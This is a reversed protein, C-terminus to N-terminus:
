AAWWDEEAGAIAVELQQFTDIALQDRADESMEGALFASELREAVDAVLDDTAVKAQGLRRRALLALKALRLVDGSDMPLSLTFSYRKMRYGPTEVVEAPAATDGFSFGVNLGVDFIGGPTPAWPRSASSPVSDPSSSSWGSPPVFGAMEEQEAVSTAASAVDPAVAVREPASGGEDRETDAPEAEGTTVARDVGDTEELVVPAM